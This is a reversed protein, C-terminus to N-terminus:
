NTVSPFRRGSKTTYSLVVLSISEMNQTLDKLESSSYNPPSAELRASHLGNEAM